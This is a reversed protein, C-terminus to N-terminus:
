KPNPSGRTRVPGALPASARQHRQHTQPSASAELSVAALHRCAPVVPIRCNLAHPSSFPSSSSHSSRLARWGQPHARLGRHAERARASCRRVVARLQTEAKLLYCKIYSSHMNSQASQEVRACRLQQVRRPAARHPHVPGEPLAGEDGVPERDECEEDRTRWRM